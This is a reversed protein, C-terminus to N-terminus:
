SNYVNEILQRVFNHRIRIHRNKGNGIKNEVLANIAQCDCYISICPDPITVIYTGGLLNALWKTEMAGRNTAQCDWYISRSPDWCIQQTM